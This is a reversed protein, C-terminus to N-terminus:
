AESIRRKAIEFYKDDLEIGIFNRNLNKCAVGTTGSGMVNDLVTDGANTYTKILYEFLAVPKQTPHLGEYDKKFELVNSNYKKGNQLNFTREFRKDIKELESFDKFGNMKNIEFNSILEQYTKETCLGFQSSETYFCHEARRHGLVSNIKSLDVDAFELIKQFYGRLPHLNQKDYKKSFVNIDEFYSVPAKKAILANAFHDKKWIMPYLFILNESKFMRLHSTYPEQSFLIAVGNMRLLREYESFLRGTDIVEDWETTQNVWGDLKANKMTGYPLDALIMDVSGDPIDKMLELCDGQLLKVDM